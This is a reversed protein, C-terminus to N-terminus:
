KLNLAHKNKNQVIDLLSTCELDQKLQTRLASFTDHMPCPNKADCSELGLGCQSFMASGDIAQVIDKISIQALQNSDVYFGGKPGTQSHVINHQVLKTLIKSTYAKPSKIAESIAPIKVTQHAESQTALFLVARIGHECAKSFM